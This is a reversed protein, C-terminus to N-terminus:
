FPVDDVSSSALSHGDFVNDRPELERILEFQRAVADAPDDWLEVAVEVDRPNYTPGSGRGNWQWLHRTLTKFLRGRHSEGIYLAEGGGLPRIMYVGNRGQLEYMWPAWGRPGDGLPSRWRAGGANRACSTGDACSACCANRAPPATSAGDLVFLREGDPHRRQVAWLALAVGAGGLWWATSTM